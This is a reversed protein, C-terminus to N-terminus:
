LVLDQKVLLVQDTSHNYNIELALFYMFVSYELVQGTNKM